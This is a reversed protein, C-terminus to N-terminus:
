GLVEEGYRLTYVPLQSHMKPYLTQASNLTYESLLKLASDDDASTRATTFPVETVNGDKDVTVYYWYAFWDGEM